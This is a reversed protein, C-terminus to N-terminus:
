YTKENREGATIGAEFMRSWPMYIDTINYNKTVSPLIREIYESIALKAAEAAKGRMGDTNFYDLGMDPLVNECLYKRAYGCYGVDEFFREALFRRHAEGKGYLRCFAALCLATGLTNSATNWGAYAGLSFLDIKQELATLLGVDGGNCYAEDAIAVVKETNVAAVIQEVFKQKTLESYPLKVSSSVDTMADAPLNVFLTIDETGEAGAFTLGASTIQAEVSKAAERDEYLPIIKKCSEEPYVARVKLSGKIDCAARCLMTMGAEDAGPYIIKESLGNARVITKLEDRDMATYGYPSSDDQPLALYDFMTPALRLVKKLMLLNTRRRFLYDDLYKGTVASYKEILEAYEAEGILGLARKHEAQGTLFIERGCLGYYDPEEDASSYTPCRMVLAFAYIKLSPNQKKIEAVASLRECLAAESLKHLRSPVIGGYLLTDVSLILAHAVKCESFLFEKLKAFDAPTKKKGMASLPPRVLNIEDSIAAIRYPFEYNCPREDLPLYVIKKM